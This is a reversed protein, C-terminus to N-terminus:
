HTALFPLVMCDVHILNTSIHFERKNWTEQSRPLMQAERKSFMVLLFFPRMRKGNALAAHRMARMLNAEPGGAPPILQDLAVTVKDAVEKLRLEFEADDGM